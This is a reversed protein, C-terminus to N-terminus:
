IKICLHSGTMSLSLNLGGDEIQELPIRLTTPAKRPPAAHKGAGILEAVARVKAGLLPDHKRTSGM